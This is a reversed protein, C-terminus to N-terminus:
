PTMQNVVLDKYKQAHEYKKHPIFKKAHAENLNTPFQSTITDARARKPLQKKSLYLQNNM